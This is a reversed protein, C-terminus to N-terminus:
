KGPTAPPTPPTPPTGSGGGPGRHHARKRLQKLAKRKDERLAIIEEPTLRDANRM